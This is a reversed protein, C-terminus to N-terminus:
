VKKDTNIRSVKTELLPKVITYMWQQADVIAQRVSLLDKKTSAIMNKKEKRELLDILLADMTHFYSKNELNGNSTLIYQLSDAHIEFKDSGDRLVCVKGYMEKAKERGQQMKDIQEQKMIINNTSNNSHKQFYM